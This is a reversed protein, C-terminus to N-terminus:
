GIGIIENPSLTSVNYIIKDQSAVLVDFAVVNNVDCDLIEYNLFLFLGRPALTRETLAKFEDLSTTLNICTPPDNTITKDVISDLQRNINYFYFDNNIKAPSSTDVIFYDKFFLSLALFVGSVVVASILFWQGKMLM